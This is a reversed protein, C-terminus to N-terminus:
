CGACSSRSHLIKGCTGCGCRFDDIEGFLIVYIPMEVIMVIYIEFDRTQQAVVRMGGHPDGSCTNLERHGIQHMVM